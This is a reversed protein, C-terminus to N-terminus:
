VATKGLRMDMALHPWLLPIGPLNRRLRLVLVKGGHKRSEAVFNLSKVLIVLRLSRMEAFFLAFWAAFCGCVGAPTQGLRIGGYRPCVGCPYGGRCPLGGEDWVVFGVRERRMQTILHRFEATKGLDREFVCPIGGIGPALLTVSVASDARYSKDDVLLHALSEVKPNFAAPTRPKGVLKIASGLRNFDMSTELGASQPCRLLTKKLSSASFFRSTMTFSASKVGITTFGGYGAASDLL